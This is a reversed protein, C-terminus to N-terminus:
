IGDGEDSVAKGPDQRVREIIVRLFGYNDKIQCM